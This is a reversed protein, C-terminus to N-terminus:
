EIIMIQKILVNIKNEKTDLTIMKKEKNIEEIIGQKGAHKGAFVIAKGKKKIPITKEIKKNKLDIIVSDNIDCKIDSIYNRGDNLNLQVKKGKLTKKDIVKAIKKSSESEKIEEVIYKGKLSLSLTYHKKSPVITITDLLTVGNKEDKIEKQNILINKSNIAKKVEKRNKAINIMDRLVILIPIGLSNPSVVYKTGKRKIPWNNPIKQRKLHM